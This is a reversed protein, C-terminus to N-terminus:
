KASFVEFLALVDNLLMQPVPQKLWKSLFRPQLKRTKKTKKNKQKENKGTVGGGDVV